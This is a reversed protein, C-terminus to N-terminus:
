CGSTLDDSVGFGVSKLAELFSAVAERDRASFSRFVRTKSLFEVLSAEDIQQKDLRIHGIRKPRGRTAVKVAERERQVRHSAEASPSECYLFFNRARVEREIIPWFEQPDTLAVLHFLLPAAGKSELYNRVRRVSILNASALHHRQVQIPHLKYQCIASRM